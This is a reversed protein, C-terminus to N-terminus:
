WVRNLRAAAAMRSADDIVELREADTRPRPKATALIAARETAATAADAERELCAAAYESQAKATANAQRAVVEWADGEHLADLLAHMTANHAAQEGTLTNRADALDFKLWVVWAALAIVLALLAKPMVDSISFM